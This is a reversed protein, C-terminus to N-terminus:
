KKVFISNYKFCIMDKDSTTEIPDPFSPNILRECGNSGKVQEETGIIRSALILTKILNRMFTRSEIVRMKVGAYSIFAQIYFYGIYLICKRSHVKNCEGFSGSILIFLDDAEKDYCNQFYLIRPGGSDQRQRLM